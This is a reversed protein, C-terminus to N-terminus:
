LRTALVCTEKYHDVNGELDYLEVYILYIGIGAKQGDDNIGDWSVADSSGLMRNTALNRVLRGNPDYVKINAVYGPNDLEFEINVVDNYGDNDPSFTEPNINIESSANESYGFQSNEYGPTAFGVRESASHWNTADNTQRDPNIRELSIGDVDILLDFHMDASYSFDDITDFLNSVLTVRGEDNSYTPLDANFVRDTHALPYELAINEPDETFAAYEGAELVLSTESLNSFNVNGGSTVYSLSWNRLDIAQNSRNYVEVFDAGGSRQDFLVENIIIELPEVLRVDFTQSGISNGICDRIGSITLTYVVGTEFADSAQIQFAQGADDIPSIALVNLGPTLTFSISDVDINGNSTIQLTSDGSIQASIFRVADPTFADYVTNQEGMTHNIAIPERWNRSGACVDLPNILELSYGGDSKDSDIYWDDSYSVTNIVEGTTSNGISIVDGANNLSPLNSLPIYWVGNNLYPSSGTSTGGILVAYSNGAIQINPLSVSSSADAFYLNDLTILSNTRNYIEVFEDEFVAEDPVAYIENIILDYVNPNLGVGILATFATSQTNGICDSIGNIEITYATGAVMPSTFDVVVTQMDLYSLTTQGLSPTLQISVSTFNSTDLQESTTFAIQTSSLVEYSVISPPIADPTIDYVSNQTGPTGGQSNESEAWNAAGSCGSVPNIQELTWGGNAKSSTAYWSSSYNVQDVVMGNYALILEDGGNNLTPWSSPSIVDGFGIWLSADGSPAIIVYSNPQLLFSPLTGTTSPDSFTFGDLNIVQNSANYLEIMETEPLGVVPTQDALIENIVIDRYNITVPLYFFFTGQENSTANGSPDEVNNVTLTYTQNANISSNLTLHVLNHNTADRTASAPNGIGGDISYNSAIQATANTVTENFFVDVTTLSTAVASDISPATLDPVISGTVVFDDFFFLDSRTSTFDCLVGFYSSTTHTTNTVTGQSVYGTFGASTDAFLEWNGNADRTVQVKIEVTSTDVIDDFGDIIKTSSSGSQEYLSVEDDTNGIMVYYGNLNQKLDSQNSTLYVYARNSSSPNFDMRLYFEWTANHIATSPTSLYAEDTVPYSNLWLENSANITFSTDDGIWTPSNTFDGDSFDDTFQCFGSISFFTIFLISLQKIVRM